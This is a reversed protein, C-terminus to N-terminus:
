IIQLADHRFKTFVGDGTAPNDYWGLSAFPWRWKRGYGSACLGPHARETGTV